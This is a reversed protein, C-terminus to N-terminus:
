ITPLNKEQIIKLLIMAYNVEYPMFMIDIKMSTLGMIKHAILPFCVSRLRFKEGFREKSILRFWVEFHPLPLNGKYKFLYWM